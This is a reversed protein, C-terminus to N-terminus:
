ESAIGVMRCMKEKRDVFESGTGAAEDTVDEVVEDTGILGRTTLM